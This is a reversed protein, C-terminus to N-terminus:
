PRRGEAWSVAYWISVDPRRGWQELAEIAWDLHQANLLGQELMYDRATLIVGILNRVYAPFLETEGACSGFFLWTNRVPVCGAGHLLSVLRHGVIPDNGARDFSRIYAAWLPGFGPPEPWLRMVDHADDQLIIRGGKRVARAMGEVVVAPQPVHELLFRTHAVDFTGWEQDTLPFDTADGQRFEVHGEEGAELALKEALAIQDQSREVGVVRTGARRAIARALQGLGSGVDLVREGGKLAMERLAAENLLDNLKSLRGQEQPETGHIYRSEGLQEIEELAANRLSACLADM